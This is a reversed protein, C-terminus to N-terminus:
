RARCTIPTIQHDKRDNRHPRPHRRRGGGGLSAWCAVLSLGRHVLLSSAPTRAAKAKAEAKAVMSPM